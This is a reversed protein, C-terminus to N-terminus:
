RSRHSTTRRPSGRSGGLRPSARRSSRIANSSADARGDRRRRARRRLARPSRRRSAPRSSAAAARTTREAGTFGRTSQATAPDDEDAVRLTGGDQDPEQLALDVRLRDHSAPEDRREQEAPVERHRLAAGEAAVERVDGGALRAYPRTAARDRIRAKRRRRRRRCAAQLDHAHVRGGRGPADAVLAGGIATLGAADRRANRVARGARRGSRRLPRHPGRVAPHDHEVSRRALPVQATEDMQAIPGAAPDGAAVHEIAALHRVSRDRTSSRGCHPSGHRTSGPARALYELPRCFVVVGVNMREGREVRPVVRYVAYSFPSRGAM